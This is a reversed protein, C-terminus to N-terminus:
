DADDEEGGNNSGSDDDDALSQGVFVTLLPALLQLADSNYLKTYFYEIYEIFKIKYWPDFIAACSLILCVIFFLQESMYLSSLLPQLSSIDDVSDCCWVYQHWSHSKLMWRREGGSIGENARVAETVMKFHHIVWGWEVVVVSVLVEKRSLGEKRRKKRGSEVVDVKRHHYLHVSEEGYVGDEWLEHGRQRKWSGVGAFFSLVTTGVLSEEERKDDVNCM